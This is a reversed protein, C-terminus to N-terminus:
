KVRNHIGSPKQSCTDDKEQIFYIEELLLKRARRQVFIERIIRTTVVDISGGLIKEPSEVLDVPRMELQVRLINEKISQGPKRIQYASM